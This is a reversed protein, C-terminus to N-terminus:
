GRLLKGLLLGTRGLGYSELWSTGNVKVMDKRALPDLKSNRHDSVFHYFLALSLSSISASFSCPITSPQGLKRNCESTM